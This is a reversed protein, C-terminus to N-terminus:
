HGSRFAPALSMTPHDGSRPRSVQSRSVPPPQVEEPQSHRFSFSAAILLVVIGAIVLGSEVDSLARDITGLSTAAVAVWGPHARFPEAVVRESENELSTTISLTSTRGQRLQAATLLLADGSDPTSGRLHGSSDFVQLIVQGPLPLGTGAKAPTNVLRGAQILDAKLQSDLLNLLGSSLEAVFLWAGFSFIVATAVTFVTALRLRISM